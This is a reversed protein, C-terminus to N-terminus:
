CSMDRYLHLALKRSSTSKINWYYQQLSFVFTGCAHTTTPEKPLLADGYTQIENHINLVSAWTVVKEVSNDKKESLLAVYDELPASRFMTKRHSASRFYRHVNLM